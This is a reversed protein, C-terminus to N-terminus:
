DNVDGAQEKNLNANLQNELVKIRDRLIAAQEYEEEQIYEQIKERLSAIEQKLGLNGGARRPIKGIHKSYGHLRRM